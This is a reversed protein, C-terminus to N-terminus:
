PRADGAPLPSADAGSKQRRLLWPWLLIAAPALILRFYPSAFRARENVHGALVTIFRIAFAAGAVFYGLIVLLLLDGALVM